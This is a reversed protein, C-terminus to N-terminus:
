PSPVIRGIGPLGQFLGIAATLGVLKDLRHYNGTLIPSPQSGNPFVVADNEKVETRVPDALNATGQGVFLKGIKLTARRRRPRMHDGHGFILAAM